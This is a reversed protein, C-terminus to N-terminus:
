QSQCKSAEMFKSNAYGTRGAATEVKWWRGAPDLVTVQEGSMLYQIHEAKESPEARLHLAEIATVTACLPAPTIPWFVAGAPNEQNELAPPAKTLAPTSAPPPATPTYLIETQLCATLFIMTAMITLTKTRIM